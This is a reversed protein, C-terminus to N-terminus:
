RDGLAPARGFTLYSTIRAGADLLAQACADLTAGTTIVDDVLIVHANRVAGRALPPVAFAGSVNALREGPTLRTQSRTARRRALVDTRAPLRWHRAVAAAIAASQNYGRERERAPALPVPVVMSREALVDAPWPLRALRPGIEEGIRWWGGYKLAHVIASGTGRDMWALSRVARVYPPLTECYRCAPVTNAALDREGAALPHGCRTCRPAPLPVVRSWCLGCVMADHSSPRACVACVRPLLLDAAADAVRRMAPLWEGNAVGAPIM